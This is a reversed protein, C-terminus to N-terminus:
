PSLRLNAPAVPVRLPHPYLYPTYKLVWGTGNWSYLQGSTNNPLNSNWSGQDTVWFGYGVETPTLANMQTTTGM